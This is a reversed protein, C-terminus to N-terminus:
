IEIGKSITIASKPVRRPNVRSLLNKVLLIKRLDDGIFFTCEINNGDISSITMPPSGSKLYVVDGIEFEEM